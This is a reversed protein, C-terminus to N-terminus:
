IEYTSPTNFIGGPINVPSGAGITYYATMTMIDGNPDTCYNTILRSIATGAYSM